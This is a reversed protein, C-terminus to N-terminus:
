LTLSSFLFSALARSNRAKLHISKEPFHWDRPGIAFSDGFTCINPPLAAINKGVRQPITTAVTGGIVEAILFLGKWSFTSVGPRM